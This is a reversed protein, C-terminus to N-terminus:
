LARQGFLGAGRPYDRDELTMPNLGWQGAVLLVDAEDPLCCDQDTQAWPKEVEAPTGRDVYIEGDASSFLRMERGDVFRAWAYFSTVRQNGIYQVESFEQAIRQIWSEWAALRVPPAPEPLQSGAVFVWGEVPPSVFLGQRRFAAELGTEWNAPQLDSIGVVRAVHRPDTTRIALWAIKYGFAVPEDIVASVEVAQEGRAASSSPQSPEAENPYWEAKLRYLRRIKWYL